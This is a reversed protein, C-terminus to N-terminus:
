GTYKADGAAAVDGEHVTIEVSQSGSRAYNKSVRIDGPVYLGSGYNGPLWFGAVTSGEFGDHFTGLASNTADDRKTAAPKDASATNEACGTAVTVALGLSLISVWCIPLLLRIDSAAAAEDGIPSLSPLGNQGNTRIRKLQAGISM